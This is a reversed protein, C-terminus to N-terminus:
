SLDSLMTCTYIFFDNHFSLTFLCVDAGIHFFFLGIVLSKESDLRDRDVTSESGEETKKKVRRKKPVKEAGEIGEPVLCVLACLTLIFNKFHFFMLYLILLPANLSLHSCMMLLVKMTWPKMALKVTVKKRKVTMEEEQGKGSRGNRLNKLKAQYNLIRM